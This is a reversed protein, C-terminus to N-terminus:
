NACHSEFIKFLNDTSAAIDFKAEVLRRGNDSIKRYLAPDSTLKLIANVLSDSNKTPTLIGTENNAILESIASINTSIVPVGVALAEMLVNPLGDRDGDADCVVCPLVFIDVNAYFRKVKEQSLTGHLHVCDTLQNLYIFELSKKYEPGSGVVDCSLCYGDHKLQKVAQLLYILGKKEVLRGVFLLRVTNKLDAKLAYTKRPWNEIDLGHYVHKIKKGDLNGFLSRLFLQNYRTCTVVFQSYNIKELVDSKSVTYIDNAHAACSFPINSLRSMIMAVTSPLSLFHSHILDTQRKRLEYLFYISISFNKTIVLLERFNKVNSILSIITSLYRQKYFFGMYLHAYISILSFTSANYIVKNMLAPQNSAKYDLNKKIAVIQINLGRKELQLIENM